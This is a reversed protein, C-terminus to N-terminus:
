YINIDELVKIIEDAVEQATKDKTEIIKDSAEEYLKKRQRLVERMDELRSERGTLSPRNPDDGIREVLTELSAELYFLTGHVKLADINEKRIIVGGGTTIICNDKDAIKKVVESEIIRFYEWGKKAVLDAITMKEQKAIEDDTQIYEKALKKALINGVTSKGAGRMGILVINM